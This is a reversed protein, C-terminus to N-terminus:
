GTAPIFLSRAPRQLAAISKHGSACAPPFLYEGFNPCSHKGTFDFRFFGFPFFLQMLQVGFDAL